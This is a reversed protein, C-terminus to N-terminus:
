PRPPPSGEFIVEPDVVASVKQMLYWSDPGEEYEHDEFMQELLRDTGRGYREGRMWASVNEKGLVKIVTNLKILNARDSEVRTLTPRDATLEPAKEYGLQVARRLLLTGLGHGYLAKDGLDMKTVYMCAEPEGDTTRTSGSRLDLQFKIISGFGPHITYYGIWSTEQLHPRGLTDGTLVERILAVKEEPPVSPEHDRSEVHTVAEQNNLM